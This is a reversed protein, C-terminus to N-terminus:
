KTQSTSRINGIIKQAHHQNKIKSLDIYMQAKSSYHNNIM